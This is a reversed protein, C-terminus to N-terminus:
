TEKPLKGSSTNGSGNKSTKKKKNPTPKKKPKGKQNIIKKLIKTQKMIEKNTLQSSSSMDNLLIQVFSFFFVVIGYVDQVSVKAQFLNATENLNIDKYPKIKYSFFEDGEEIIPRYLLATIKHLNDIPSTTVFAELDIWEGLTLQNLDKQFGYRKGGVEIINKFVSSPELQFGKLENNIQTLSTAPLDYILSEDEDTLISVQKVMKKTPTEITTDNSVAMFEQFQGINIDSWNEPIRLILEEKNM